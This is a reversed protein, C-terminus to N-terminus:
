NKGGIYTLHTQAHVHTLTFASSGEAHARIHPYTHALPRKYVYETTLGFSLERSTKRRVFLMIIYISSIPICLYTSVYNYIYSYGRECMKSLSFRIVMELGSRVRYNRKRKNTYIYIYKCTNQGM